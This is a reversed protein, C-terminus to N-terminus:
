IDAQRLFQMHAANRGDNTYDAPSLFPEAPREVNLIKSIERPTQQRRIQNCLDTSTKLHTSSSLSLSWSQKNIFHDIGCLSTYM